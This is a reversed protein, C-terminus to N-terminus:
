WPSGESGDSEVFPCWTLFCLDRPPRLCLRWPAAGAVHSSTISVESACACFNSSLMEPPSILLWPLLTSVSEDAISANDDGTFTVNGVHLVGALVGWLEKQKPAPVKCTTLASSLEEFMEGDPMGELSPDLSSTAYETLLSSM